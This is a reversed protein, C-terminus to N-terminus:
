VSQNADSDFKGSLELYQGVIVFNKLDYEDLGRFIFLEDWLSSSNEVTFYGTVLDIGVFIRKCKAFVKKRIGNREYLIKGAGENKIFFVQPEPAKGSPLKESFVKNEVINFVVIDSLENPAKELPYKNQLYTLLEKGSKRNPKLTCGFEKTLNKWKTLIKQNVPRNLM